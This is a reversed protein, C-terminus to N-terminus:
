TVRTEPRSYGRRGNRTADFLEKESLFSSFTVPQTLRDTAPPEEVLARQTMGPDARHDEPPPVPAM